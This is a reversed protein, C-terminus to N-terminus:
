ENIKQGHTEYWKNSEKTQAM